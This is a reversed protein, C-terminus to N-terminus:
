PVKRQTECASARDAAGPGGNCVDDSGDGRMVDKGAGGLLADAGGGGSLLDNGPGGVLRDKGTDGYARDKGPGGVETDRGAAGCFSDNGGLGIARDNGGLLLFADAGPTGNLVDDRNTGVRNAIKGHCRVLEYAGIDCAGGASRPIGRQDTKACGGGKDLAPSGPLLAHTPTRGGNDALPGLKADVGAIDGAAASYPCGTPNGILTQGQSALTSGAVNICDPVQGGKDINGAVITSRLNTTRGFNGIGGAQGFGNSDADATNATVTVNILTTTGGSNDVGGGDVNSSNASITSDVVNTIGTSTTEVGGGHRLSLNATVTSDSLSFVGASNLIGGGDTGSPSSGGEILLGSLTVAAGGPANVEFVRDLSQANVTATGDGRHEITLPATVDLDGTADLQEGAGAITLNYTGPPVKVVDAGAGSDCGPAMAAVDHNASWIAERLSCKGGANFEDATTTVKITAASAPGAISLALAAAISIPCLARLPRPARLMTSNRNM